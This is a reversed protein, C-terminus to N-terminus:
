GHIDHEEIFEMMESWTPFEYRKGKYEVTYETVQSVEKRGDADGPPKKTQATGEPVIVNYVFDRASDIPESCSIEHKIKHM